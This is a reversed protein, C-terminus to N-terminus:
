TCSSNPSLAAEIRTRSRNSHPKESDLAAKICSKAAFATEGYNSLVWQDISIPTDM